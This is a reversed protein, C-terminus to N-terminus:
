GYKGLYEAGIVLNSLCNANKDPTKNKFQRYRNPNAHQFTAKWTDLDMKILEIQDISYEMLISNISAVYSNNSIYIKNINQYKFKLSNIM